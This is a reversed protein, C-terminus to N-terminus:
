WSVGVFAGIRRGGAGGDSVLVGGQVVTKATAFKATVDMTREKGDRMFKVTFKTKDGSFTLATAIKVTSQGGSTAKRYAFEWDLKGNRLTASLSGGIELVQSTATKEKGVHLLLRGQVVDFEFTTEVEIKTSRLGSEKVDDIRFTLTLNAGIEMSGMFQLRREVNNKKYVMALHNRAPDVRVVAPLILPQEKLELAANDLVFHLRVESEAAKVREWAGAFILSNPFTSLDADAFQFRCRSKLDAIFGNLVSEQGGISVVLNGDGNLGYLCHLMFTFVRDGDPDVVLVNKELSFTPVGETSAKITFVPEGGQSLTLQNKDNFAWGVELTETAPGAADAARKIVVHNADDTSWDAIKNGAGDHVSGDTDLTLDGGDTKLTFKNM